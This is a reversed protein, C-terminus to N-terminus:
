SEEKKAAPKNPEKTVFYMFLIVIIILIVGSLTASTWYLTVYAYLFHLWGMAELFILIIGIFMIWMFLKNWGGKLYYGEDKNFSGALILFFIM